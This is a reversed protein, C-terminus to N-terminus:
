FVTKVLGRHILSPSATDNCRIRALQALRKAAAQPHRTNPRRHCSVWLHATEQETCSAGAHSHSHNGNGQAAAATAAEFFFFFLFPLFFCCGESLPTSSFVPLLDSFGSSSGLFQTRQRIMTRRSKKRPHPGQNGREDNVKVMGRVVRRARSRTTVWFPGWRCSRSSSCSLLPSSTKM